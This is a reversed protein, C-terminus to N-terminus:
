LDVGTSFVGEDFTKLRLPKSCTSKTELENETNNTVLQTGENAKFYAPKTSVISGPNDPFCVLHM